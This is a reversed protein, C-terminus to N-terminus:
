REEFEATLEELLPMLYKRGEEAEAKLDELLESQYKNRLAICEELQYGRFASRFRDINREQKNVTKLEQLTEM